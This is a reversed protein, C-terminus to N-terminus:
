LFLDRLIPMLDTICSYSEYSLYISRLVLIFDSICSYTEYYLYLIRFVLIHESVLKDCESERDSGFPPDSSPGPRSVIYQSEKGTKKKKESVAPGACKYPNM